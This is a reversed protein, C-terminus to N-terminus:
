SKWPGVSRPKMLAPVFAYRSGELDMALYYRAIHPRSDHRRVPMRAPKDERFAPRFAPEGALHRGWLIQIGELEMTM